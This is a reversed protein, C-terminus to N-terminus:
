TARTLRPKVAEGGPPLWLPFSQTHGGLDIEDAVALRLAVDVAADVANGVAADRGLAPPLDRREGLAEAVHRHVRQVGAVQAPRLLGRARDQLVVIQRQPDLRLQVLLVGADPLVAGEPVRRPFRRLQHQDEIVVGGGPGNRAALGKIRQLPTHARGHLLDRRPVPTLGDDADAVAHGDAAQQGQVLTDRGVLDPAQRVRVVGGDAQQYSTYRKNYSPM